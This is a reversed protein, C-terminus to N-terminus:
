SRVDGMGHEGHREAPDPPRTPPQGTNVAEVGAIVPYQKAVHPGSIADGRDFADHPNLHLFALEGSTEYQLIDLRGVTVLTAFHDRARESGARPMLALGRTIGAFVLM